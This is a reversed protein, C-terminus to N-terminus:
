DDSENLPTPLHKIRETKPLPSAGIIFMPAEEGADVRLYLSSKAFWEDFASERDLLVKARLTWELNVKGGVRSRLVQLMEEEKQLLFTQRKDTVLWNAEDFRSIVARSSLAIGKMKFIGTLFPDIAGEVLTLGEAEVDFLLDTALRILLAGPEDLGRTEWLSSAVISKVEKLTEKEEKIKRIIESHEAPTIGLDLNQIRELDDSFDSEELGWIALRTRIHRILQDQLRVRRERVEEIAIHKGFEIVLASIRRRVALKVLEENLERALSVARGLAKEDDWQDDIVAFRGGDVLHVQGKFKRELSSLLRVRKASSAFFADHVKGREGREYYGWHDHNLYREKVLRKLDDGLNSRRDYPQTINKRVESLCSYRVIKCKKFRQCKDCERQRSCEKMMDIAPGEKCLLYQLESFRLGTEKNDKMIKQMDLQDFLLVIPHAALTEPTTFRRQSRGKKQKSMFTRNYNHQYFKIIRDKRVIKM